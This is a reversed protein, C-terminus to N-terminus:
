GCLLLPNHLQSLLLLISFPRTGVQLFPPSQFNQGATEPLPSNSRLGFLQAHVLAASLASLNSQNTAPLGQLFHVPSHAQRGLDTLKPALSTDCM